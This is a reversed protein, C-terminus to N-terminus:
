IKFDVSSVSFITVFFKLQDECKLPHKEKRTDSVM